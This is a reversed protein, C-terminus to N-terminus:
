GKDEYITFAKKTFDVKEVWLHVFAFDMGICLINLHLSKHELHFSYWSYMNMSALIQLSM